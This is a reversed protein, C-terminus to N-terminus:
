SGPGLRVICSPSCNWTVAITWNVGHPPFGDSAVGGQYVINMVQRRGSRGSHRPDRGLAIRRGRAARRSPGQLDRDVIMNASGAYASVGVHIFSYAALLFSDDDALPDFTQDPQILGASAALANLAAAYNIVPQAVYSFGKLALYQRILNVHAQEDLAVRLAYQQIATTQFPVPGPTTLTVVGGAAGNSGPTLNSRLGQSTVAHLYLNAELYELNLAFNFIGGDTLAAAQARAAAPAGLVAGVAAVSAAGLM